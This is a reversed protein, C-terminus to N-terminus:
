FYTFINKKLTFNKMKESFFHTIVGYKKNAYRLFGGLVLVMSLFLCVLAEGPLEHAASHEHHDENNEHVGHSDHVDHDNQQLDLTSSM